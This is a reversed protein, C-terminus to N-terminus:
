FSGLGWNLSGICGMVMSGFFQARQFARTSKNFHALIDDNCHVLAQMSICWHRRQFAGTGASVHM